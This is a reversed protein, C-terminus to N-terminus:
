CRAARSACVGSRITHSGGEAIREALKPESAAAVQLVRIPIPKNRVQRFQPNANGDKEICVSFFPHRSQVHDLAVRWDGVTTPGEIQAALSFHM